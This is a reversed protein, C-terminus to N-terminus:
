VVVDYSNLLELVILECFFLIDSDFFVLFDYKKQNEIYVNVLIKNVYFDYFFEDNLVLDIYEVSFKELYKKM